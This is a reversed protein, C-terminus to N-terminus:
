IFNKLDRKMWTLEEEDEDQIKKFWNKEYFSIANRSSPVYLKNKWKSKLESEIKQLLLTWIWLGKFEEKVFLNSISWKENENDWFNALMWVWVIEWDKDKVVFIDKWSFSKEINEQSTYKISHEIIIISHYQSNVKTLNEQIIKSIRESDWITARECIFNNGM